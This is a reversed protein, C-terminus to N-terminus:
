HLLHALHAITCYGGIWTLIAASVALYETLLKEDKMIVAAILGAPAAILFMPFLMFILLVAPLSYTYMQGFDSEQHM